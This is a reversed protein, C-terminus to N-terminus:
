TKIGSMKNKLYVSTIQWDCRIMFGPTFLLYCIMKMYVTMVQRDFRLMFFKYNKRIGLM